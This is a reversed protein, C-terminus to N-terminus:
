PDYQFICESAAGLCHVTTHHHTHPCGDHTSDLSQGRTGDVLVTWSYRMGDVLVEQQTGAAQRSGDDVRAAWAFVRAASGASPSNRSALTCMASAADAWWLFGVTGQM